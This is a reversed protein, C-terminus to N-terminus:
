ILRNGDATIKYVRNVVGRNHIEEISDLSASLHEGALMEALATIHYIDLM